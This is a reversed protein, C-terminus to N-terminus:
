QPPSPPCSFSLRLYFVPSPALSSSKFTQGLFLILRLLLLTEQVSPCVPPPLSFSTHLESFSLLLCPSLLSNFHSQSPPSKFSSLPLFSFRSFLSLQHSKPTFAFHGPPLPPPFSSFLPLPAASSQKCLSNILVQVTQPASRIQHHAATQKNVIPLLPLLGASICVRETEATQVDVLGAGLATFKYGPHRRQGAQQRGDLSDRQLPNTLRQLAGDTKTIVTLRLSGSM